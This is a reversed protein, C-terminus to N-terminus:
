ILSIARNYNLQSMGLGGYEKPIKIGFCGLDKLGQLVDAPLDKKEDAADADLRTKCFQELQNLFLDGKVKDETSQEPYPFMLEKRFNGIFLEAVFSPYKWAKERAEEAMEMAAPQKEM